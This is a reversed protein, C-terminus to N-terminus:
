DTKDKAVSWLVEFHAKYSDSIEKNKILFVMPKQTLIHISVYDGFISTTAESKLDLYKTKVNKVKIMEHQKFEPSTIIRASFGKKLEKVLAPTEYFADYARGTAGFSSWEQYKMMLKLFTRLGEKGEFIEIKYPTEIIKEISKLEPIINKLIAEKEKLSNLLNEPDCASFIKKSGLITYKIMGKELLHNLVTYSLTRDMSLNKSLENASLQGKKLLELYARSENGTLGAKKLGEEIQM